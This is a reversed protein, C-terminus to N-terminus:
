WGPPLVCRSHYPLFRQKSFSMCRRKWRSGRCGAMLGVTVYAALSALLAFWIMKLINFDKHLESDPLM